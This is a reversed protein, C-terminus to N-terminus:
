ECCPMERTHIVSFAVGFAGPHGARDGFALFLVCCIHVLGRGDTPMSRAVRTSPVSSSSTSARCRARLADSDRINAM